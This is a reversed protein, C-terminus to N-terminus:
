GRRLAGRELDRRSRPQHALLIQADDELGVHLTREFGDDVRELLDLALFDFRSIMWLATPGIVSFSM